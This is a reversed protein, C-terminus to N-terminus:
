QNITLESNESPVLKSPDLYGTLEIAVIESEEEVLVMYRNHSKSKGEQIFVSVLEGRDTIQALDEFGDQKMLSKFGAVTLNLNSFEQKPITILRVQKLEKIADRVELEGAMNLIVRGFWGTVSFSHVDPQGKFNDKLASYSRSQALVSSSIAFLAIALLCRSKM